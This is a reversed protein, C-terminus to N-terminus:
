QSIETRTLGVVPNLKPRPIIVPTSPVKLTRRLQSFKRLRLIKREHREKVELEALQLLYQQFGWGGGGQEAEEALAEHHAVFSPLKLERLLMGVSNAASM